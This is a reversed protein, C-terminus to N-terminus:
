KIRSGGLLPYFFSIFLVFHCFLNEGPLSDVFSSIFRRESTQSKVTGFTGMALLTMIFPIFLQKSISVELNHIIIRLLIKVTYADPEPPREIEIATFNFISELNIALLNGFGGCIGLVKM